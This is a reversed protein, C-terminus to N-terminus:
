PQGVAAHLDIRAGEELAVVYRGSGSLKATIELALKAQRDYWELNWGCPWSLARVAALRMEGGSGGSPMCAAGVMKLHFIYVMFIRSIKVV